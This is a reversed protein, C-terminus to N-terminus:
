SKLASFVLRSAKAKVYEYCTRVRSIKMQTFHKHEPTDQPTQVLAENRLALLVTKDLVKQLIITFDHFRM